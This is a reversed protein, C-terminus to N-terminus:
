AKGSRGAGAQDAYQALMENWRSLEVHHRVRSCIGFICLSVALLYPGGGRFSESATTLYWAVAAVAIALAFAADDAWHKSLLALGGALHTIGLAVPFVEHFGARAFDEAVRPVCLLGLGMAISVLALTIRSV